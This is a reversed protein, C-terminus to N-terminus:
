NITLFTFIVALYIFATLFMINFVPYKKKIAKDYYFIQVFVRSGWFLAMFLSLAWPLSGKEAATLEANYCVCLLVMGALMLTTYGCHVCFVQRHFNGMKNINVAYNLKRPAIFNALFIMALVFGACYILFEFTIM